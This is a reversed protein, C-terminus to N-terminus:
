DRYKEVRRANTGVDTSTLKYSYFLCCALSIVSIVGAPMISQTELFRDGMVLFVLTSIALSGISYSYTASKFQKGSANEEYDKKSSLGFFILLAGTIGGFAVSAVSGSIIFGILGGVCLLSGYPISVEHLLM